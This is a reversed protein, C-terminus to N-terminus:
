DVCQPMGAASAKEKQNSIALKKLKKWVNYLEDDELNYGEYYREQFKM